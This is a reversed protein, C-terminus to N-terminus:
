LLTLSYRVAPSTQWVGTAAAGGDPVVSHEASDVRSFFGTARGRGALMYDQARELSGFHRIDGAEHRHSLGHSAVRGSSVELRPVSLLEEAFGVTTCLVNLFM